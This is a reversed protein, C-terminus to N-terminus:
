KMEVDVLSSRCRLIPPRQVVWLMFITKLTHPGGVTVAGGAGGGVAAGGGGGATTGEFGGDHHDTVPGGGWREGVAGEVVAAAGM